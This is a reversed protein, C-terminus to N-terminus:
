PTKGFTFTVETGLAEGLDNELDSFSYSYDVRYKENFHKLREFTIKLGLSEKQLHKTEAYSAARKRGVGNDTIKLLNNNKSKSFLLTLTKEGDKNLLGHIIANEIFPQLIMPPLMIEQYQINEPNLVKFIIQNEFRLNEIDMYIKVLDLEDQLSIKEVRSSTLINRILKSFKSLFSVASKKDNEILYYKISNLANFIFHPNMQNQLSVLHLQNIEDEHESKLRKVREEEAKATIALIAIEKEELKEQLLLNQKEIISENERSKRIIELNMLKIKYAFGFAFLIQEGLIGINFIDYSKISFFNWRLLPFFLSIMSFLMYFIGGVIFYYKLFGPIKCAKVVTYIALIVMIPVIAYVYTHYFFKRDTIKFIELFFIINAVVVFSFVATLIDKFAKPQYKKFELINLFFLFYAANYFVQLNWQLSFFYSIRFNYSGDYYNLSVMIFFCLLLFAYISYYAFSKEKLNFGILASGLCLVSLITMMFQWFFPIPIQEM